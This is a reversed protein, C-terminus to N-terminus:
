AATSVCSGGHPAALVPEYVHGTVHAAVHVPVHMLLTQVPVPAVPEHVAEHGVGWVPVHGVGVLAFAAEQRRASMAQCHYAVAPVVADKIPSDVVM